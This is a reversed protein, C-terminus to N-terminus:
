WTAVYTFDSGWLTNPAPAKFIRNVRDLPCPASKDSFTTRHPKGRIVGFECQKAGPAEKGASCPLMGTAHYPTGKVKADAAPATGLAGAAAASAGALRTSAASRAM